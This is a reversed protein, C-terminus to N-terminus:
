LKLLPLTAFPLVPITGLVLLVVVAHHRADFQFLVGSAMFHWILLWFLLAESSGLFLVLSSQLAMDVASGFGKDVPQGRPCILLFKLGPGGSAETPIFKGSGKPQWGDIFDSWGVCQSNRGMIAHVWWAAKQHTTSVETFANAARRNLMFVM